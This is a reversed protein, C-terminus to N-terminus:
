DHVFFRYLKWSLFESTEKKALIMDVFDDGDFTGRRGFISKEDPDHENERFVFADDDYTYGTLARAGEKIDNETYGRGEGLTFLEMLERALNENPRRRRNEDNDLYQLMAPDRIIGQVLDGFNGLAYRRFLRNQMALHWSDQVTRHSSAFHGHWFLTMKEELPRSSEIMRRLWWKQMEALQERDAKDRDQRMKQLRALTEEDKNQRAQRAIQREEDTEPHIISGDWAGEESTPVRDCEVLSEVAKAVGLSHLARVQIPTAGFGARNALHLASWYDFSKAALPRLPQAAM